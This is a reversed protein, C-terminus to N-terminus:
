SDEESPAASDDQEAAPVRYVEGFWNALDLDACRSSCFPHHERVTVAGCIPCRPLRKRTSRAM